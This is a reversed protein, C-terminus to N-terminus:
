NGNGQWHLYGSSEEVESIHFKVKKKKETVFSGIVEPFLFKWWAKLRCIKEQISTTDWQNLNQKVSAQVKESVSHQDAKRYNWSTKSSPLVKEERCQIKKRLLCYFGGCKGEKTKTMPYTFLFSFQFPAFIDMQPFDCQTLLSASNTPTFWSSIQHFSFYQYEDIEHKATVQM